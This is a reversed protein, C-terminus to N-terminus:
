STKKQVFVVFTTYLIYMDLVEGKKSLLSQIIWNELKQKVILYTRNINFLFLFVHVMYNEWASIHFVYIM